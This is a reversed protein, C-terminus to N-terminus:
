WRKSLATASTRVKTMPNIMRTAKNRKVNLTTVPNNPTREVM